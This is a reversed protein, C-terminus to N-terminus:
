KRKRNLTVKVKNRILYCKHVNPDNRFDEGITEETIDEVLYKERISDELRFKRFNTSFILIGGPALHMAAAKILAYHDRQVDFTARGKSNSFTPPDCFILDYRDYTAWLWSIADDRYFFNEIDTPYGNMRLNAIAWDLYTSSADVSVTSLAGGKIANLTASGTYCFLNLFRKGDAMEQIMKRVPRHDLFLGTDLYDQFNVLLKLGNERVINFRNKSALKTYQSKGKQEKRQKVSGYLYDDPIMCVSGDQTREVAIINGYEWPLIAPKTEDMPLENVNPIEFRYGGDDTQLGDEKIARTTMTVENGAVTDYVIWQHDIGCEIQRGDDLVLSYTDVDSEPSIHTIETETGYRTIVKDGVCLDGNHKWGDPTLIDADLPLVKGSGYSAQIIRFSSEGNEISEIDKLMAATEDLRGVQVFQIGRRPTVGGGFADLVSTRDQPRIRVRRQQQGNEGSGNPM